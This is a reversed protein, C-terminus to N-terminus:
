AQRIVQIMDSWYISLQHRILARRCPFPVPLRYTTPKNGPRRLAAYCGRDVLLLRKVARDARRRCGDM